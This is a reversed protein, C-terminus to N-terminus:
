KFLIHVEGKLLLSNGLTESFCKHADYYHHSYFLTLSSIDLRFTCLPPTIQSIKLNVPEHCIIKQGRQIRQKVHSDLNLLTIM